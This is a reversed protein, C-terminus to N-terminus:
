LPTGNFKNMYWKRAKNAIPGGLKKPDLQNAIVTDAEEKMADNFVWRIFDGMSTMDFPKLQENV